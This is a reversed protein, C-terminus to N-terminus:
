RILGATAANRGAPGSNRPMTRTLYEDFAREYEPSPPDNHKANRIVVMRRPGGAADFLKQASELPVVEDADGHCQLLAGHYAAIRTQSDLRQTMNFYPLAWPVHYNAVDPLSSFTSELALFRAGGEAALEVAVAGGLSRGVYVLEGDKLGTRTTLWRRAARGDYLIGEESPSGESKGYGRYDFLFVSVQYRDRMQRAVTSWTEVSGANGHCYLVAARPQPHAFFRGHLKVGDEAQFTVEEADMGATSMEPGTARQYVWAREMPGLPSLPGLAACGPALASLAVLILFSQFRGM